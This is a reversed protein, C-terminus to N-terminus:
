LSLAMLSLNLHMLLNVLSVLHSEYKRETRPMTVGTAQTEAEVMAVYEGTLQKTRALIQNYEEQSKKNKLAEDRRWFKM